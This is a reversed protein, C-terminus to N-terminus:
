GKNEFTGVSLLDKYEVNKTPSDSKQKTIISVLMASVLMFKENQGRFIYM